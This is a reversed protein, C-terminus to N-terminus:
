KNLHAKAKPLPIKSKFIKKEKVSSKAATNKTPKNEDTEDEVGVKPAVANGSSKKKKSRYFM